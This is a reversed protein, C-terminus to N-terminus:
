FPKTTFHQCVIFLFFYNNTGTLHKQFSTFFFRLLPFNNLDKCREPECYSLLILILLTQIHRMQTMFIEVPIFFILTHTRTHTHSLSLSLSFLSHSSFFTSVDSLCFHFEQYLCFIKLFLNM